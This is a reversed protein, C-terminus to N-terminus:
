NMVRSNEPPRACARATRRRSGRIEAEISSIQNDRYRELFEPWDKKVKPKMARMGLRSRYRDGEISHWEGPSNWGNRLLWECYHAIPPREVAGPSAKRVSRLVPGSGSEEVYFRAATGIRAILADVDSGVHRMVAITDLHDGAALLARAGDLLPQRTSAVILQAGCRAEFRSDGLPVASILVVHAQTCDIRPIKRM